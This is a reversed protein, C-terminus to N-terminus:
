KEYVFKLWIVQIDMSETNLDLPSFVTFGVMFKDDSKKTRDVLAVVTYVIQASPNDLSTPLENPLYCSFDYNYVGAYLDIEPGNINGMLVTVSRLLLEEGIHIYKVNGEQTDWTTMAGGQVTLTISKIKISKKITFVASGLLQQGSCYIGDPNNLYKIVCSVTRESM